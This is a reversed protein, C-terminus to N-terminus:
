FKLSIVADVMFRDEFLSEEEETLPFEYAFGLDLWKAVKFRSGLALTILNRNKDCNEGGLNVIDVGNFTAIGAVLDDEEDTGLAALGKKPLTREGTSLVYFHNLEILPHLMPTVAYSLHWSDYFLTNEDDSDVPLILGATGSLQLKDYGKTFLIAPAFNGSGNGQYVDDSGIASEYVLRASMIFDKEPMYLFSYQLGAAIDLWGDSESLTKDPNMDAFGDKVAIISFRDNLAFTAQLAFVNVDGGVPVKGVISDVKDPLQHYIYIPRVMTINRADGHYVPNSVPMVYRNLDGAFVSSSVITILFIASYLIYLKISTLNSRNSKHMKHSFNYNLM